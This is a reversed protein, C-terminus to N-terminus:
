QPNSLVNEEYWKITKGLGEELTHMKNRVTWGIEKKAKAIDLVKRKVGIFRNTNYVIKGQYGLVKKITEALEKITTEVGTGMNITDGEYSQAAMLLGEIQDEVYILERTQTGDGWVEVEPLNEKKAKCFKGILAAVVHATKINFDDHPGYLTAFMPMTGRLKYQDKYAQIGVKLLKKTFGYSYVSEHLAGEDIDEEKLKPIAGPYCCSSGVAVLKAQPQFKRWAELTNVHILNNIHFQIGTHYMPWDAAHQLAAMHIIIDYKMKEKQMVAEADRAKTLDFEKSGFVFYHAGLQELKKRLNKGVFSTGGTVLVKKGKWFNDEM